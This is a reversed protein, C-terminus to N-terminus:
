DGLKLVPKVSSIAAKNRAQSPLYLLTSSGVEYPSSEVLLM